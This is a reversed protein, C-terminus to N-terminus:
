TRPLPRTVLEGAPTTLQGRFHAPANAYPRETRRVARGADPERNTPHPPSQEPRRAQTTASLSEVTVATNRRRQAVRSHARCSEFM